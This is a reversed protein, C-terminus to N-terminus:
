GVRMLYSRNRSQIERMNHLHLTYRTHRPGWRQSPWLWAHGPPWVGISESWRSRNLEWEAWNGGPYLLSLDHDWVRKIIIELPLVSFSNCHLSLLRMFDADNYDHSWRLLPLMETISIFTIMSTSLPCYYHTDGATWAYSVELPESLSSSSIYIVTLFSPFCEDNM